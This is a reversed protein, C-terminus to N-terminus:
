YEKIPIIALNGDGYGDVAYSLNKINPFFKPVSEVIANHLGKYLPAFPQCVYNKYINKEIKIILEEGEYKPSFKDEESFMYLLTKKDMENIEKGNVKYNTVIDNITDTWFSWWTPKEEDEFQLVTQTYKEEKSAAEDQAKAQIEESIKKYKPYENQPNKTLRETGNPNINYRNRLKFWLIGRADRIKNEQLENKFISMETCLDKLETRSLEKLQRFIDDSVLSPVTSKIAEIIETRMHAQETIDKESGPLCDQIRFVFKDLKGGRGKGSRIEYTDFYFDILGETFLKKMEKDASLVYRTKLLNTTPSVNLAEALEVPTYSFIGASRWKCCKDYFFQTAKDQISMTVAFDLMTFHKNVVYYLPLVGPTIYITMGVHMDYNVEGVLKAKVWGTPTEYNVSTNNLWLAAAKLERHAHEDPYWRLIDERPIILKLTEKKTIYSEVSLREDQIKKVIFKIARYTGKNLIQKADTLFNTQYIPCTFNMIRSDNKKDSLVTIKELNLIEKFDKKMEKKMEAFIAKEVLYLNNKSM